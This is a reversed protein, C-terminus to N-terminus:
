CLVDLWLEMLNGLFIGIMWATSYDSILLAIGCIDDSSMVVRLRSGTDSVMALTM